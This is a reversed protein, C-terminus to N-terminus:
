QLTYKKDYLAYGSAIESQSLMAHWSILHFSIAMDAKPRRAIVNHLTLEHNVIDLAYFVM